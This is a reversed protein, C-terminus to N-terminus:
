GFSFDGKNLDALKLDRFTLSDSASATIVVDPGAQAAHSLVDAFGDFTSRSFRVVDHGWGSAQFDKIVDNGFNASFVFTDSGGRGVMLDNGSTSVLTDRGNTGVIFNGFGGGFGGSQGGSSSSQGSFWDTVTSSSHSSGWGDFGGRGGFGGFGGFWGSGGSSAPPASNDVVPTSPEPSTVPTEVSVTKQSSARSLNGALDMAKASFNHAGDALDGTQYNWAGKSDAAVTAIKTSGDYVHVTSNAEATGKLMLHDLATSGSVAKGGDSPYVALTPAGPAKTDITVALAASASGTQGDTGVAKATLAHSGDKLASTTLSWAGDKDTTTTGVLKNGDYVKVTANAASAGNLTLTNDSTVNDGVKGTDNSFSAISPVTPQTPMGPNGSGGGSSGTVNVVLASSAAGTNGAADAARATFSHSGSSLSEATFNWAGSADTKVTGIKTSGDYVSVTSNAEASGQLAVTNSAEVKASASTNISPATPPTTDVTVALSSSAASTKGSADTVQASFTHKGDTLASTTYKWNGSSDATATGIQKTGDFVKVTGNAAAKGNFTLTNDNTIGDGTTGSDNSFSAITPADPTPAEPVTPQHNGSTNLLEALALGDNVNGSMTVKNGLQMRLDLPGWHGGGVHNNTYTVNTLPGGGPQGSAMENIYVTYGGGILLNNDIVVNNIPGWYNDLMIAATQTHDNIVTNHRITLNSFNGDAQIGDYHSGPTGRMDHIYNDQILTNDGRVDIGDAVGYINNAIFTGQGAIGQGGVGQNDIECNQVTVGTVGKKILVVAFSDSSIKCDILTVNPANIVVDGKIDLGRIVAGPTNIVLPGSAKLTVGASVGTNTADPFGGTSTAM